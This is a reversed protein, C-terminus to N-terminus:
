SDQSRNRFAMETELAKIFNSLLRYGTLDHHKLCLQAGIKSDALADQFDGLYYQAIGRAGFAEAYNPDIQIAKTFESIAGKFNKADLMLKGLWLLDKSSISSSSKHPVEGFAPSVISLLASVSNLSFLFLFFVLNVKRM